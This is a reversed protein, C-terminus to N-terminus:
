STYLQQYRFCSTLHDNVMGSAQMYAYCITPGVFGMGRKRLDKSMSTAISDSAPLESLQTYHHQIPKANVFGWLYKDFSGYEKQIELIAKANKIVSLIKLRNRIIGEDNMLKDVRADDFNSVNKPDFGQFAKSYGERRKLITLWSLGAQAGELTLLEFLKKDDHLPVGWQNDHYSIYLENDGSWGCRVLKTKDAM